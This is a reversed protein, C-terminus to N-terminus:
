CHGFRGCQGGVLLPKPKAEPSFNHIDLVLTVAGICLVVNAAVEYDALCGRFFIGILMLLLGNTM